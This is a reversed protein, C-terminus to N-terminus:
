SSLFFSPSLQRHPVLVGVSWVSNTIYVRLLVINGYSSITGPIGTDIYGLIYHTGAGSKWRFFSGVRRGHNIKNVCNDILDLFEVDM